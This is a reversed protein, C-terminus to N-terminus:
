ETSPLRNHVNVNSVQRVLRGLIVDAQREFSV